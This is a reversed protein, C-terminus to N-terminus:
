AEIRQLGIFAERVNVSELHSILVMQSSLKQLRDVFTQHRVPSETWLSDMQNDRLLGFHIHQQWQCKVGGERPSSYFSRKLHEDKMQDETYQAGTRHILGTLVMTSDFPSAQEVGSDFYTSILEKQLILYEEGRVDKWKQGNSESPSLTLRKEKLDAPDAMRVAGVIGMTGCPVDFARTVTDMLERLQVPRWTRIHMWFDPIGRWGLYFPSAM